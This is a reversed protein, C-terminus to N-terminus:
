MFYHMRMLTNAISETHFTEQTFSFSRTELEQGPLEWPLLM